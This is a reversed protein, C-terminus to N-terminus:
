RASTREFEVRLRHAAGADHQLQEAYAREHKFRALARAMDPQTIPTSIAAALAEDPHRANRGQLAVAEAIRTCFTIADYSQIPKDRKEGWARRLESLIYGILARPHGDVGSVWTGACGLLPFVDMATAFPRAIREVSLDRGQEKLARADHVRFLELIAGATKAAPKDVFSACLPTIRQDMDLGQKRAVEAHAAGARAADAAEAQQSQALLDALQDRLEREKRAHAQQRLSAALTKGRERDAFIPSALLSAADDFQSAVAAERADDVSM